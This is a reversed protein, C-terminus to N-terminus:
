VHYMTVMVLCRENYLVFWLLCQATAQLLRKLPGHGGSRKELQLVYEFVSMLIAIVMEWKANHNGQFLM